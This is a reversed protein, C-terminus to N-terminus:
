DLKAGSERAARVWRAREEAVFRDFDGGTRQGVFSGTATIQQAFEPSALGRRMAAALRGLIDPPTGSPAFLGVWSVAHFGGFGPLESLAPVDPLLPSRVESTVALVKLKGAHAHKVVNPLNDVLLLIQGGLLDNLAPASGKYPVHTLEAGSAKRFMEGTLHPSTGNGGSGYSLGSRMAKSLRVLGDITDTRLSPHAVIVNPTSSIHAIGVFDREADYRLERYLVKNVTQTPVTGLLLTYGDPKAKAALEAGINGGAGPKNEVVFQGRLEKTLIAAALRAMADTNAGAPFPVIITVPREPYTQAGAASATVFAALAALLVSRITFIM